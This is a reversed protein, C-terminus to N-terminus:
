ARKVGVVMWDGFVRYCRAADSDIALVVIKETAGTAANEITLTFESM